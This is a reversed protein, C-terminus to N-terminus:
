YTRVNVHKARERALRQKEIQEFAEKFLREEESKLEEQTPPRYEGRHMAQLADQLPSYVKM